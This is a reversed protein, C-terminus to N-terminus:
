SNAKIVKTRAIIDHLCTKNNGFIFCANVISLIQGIIPVYSIGFYFFYRKGLTSNSTDAGSEEVARIGVIKKGITQGKPILFKFNLLLFIVVSIVGFVLQYGLSLQEGAFLTEFGGTFYMLPLTIVSMIISDLLSAGLRELRTALPPESEDMVVPETTQPAAYINEEM